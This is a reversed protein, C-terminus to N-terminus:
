DVEIRAIQKPRILGIHRQPVFAEVLTPTLSSAARVVAPARVTVDVELSPLATLAAVCGLLLSIYIWPRSGGHAAYLSELTHPALEAPVFRADEPDRGLPSDSPDVAM